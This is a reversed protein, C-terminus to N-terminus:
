TRGKLYEAGLARAPLWCAMRTARCGDRVFEASIPMFGISRYFPLAFPTSNVEITKVEPFSTEIHSRAGEWLARGIGRRLRSPHVFLLSLLSPSPMGIVGALQDGSFAAAAYAASALGKSLSQPSSETLFVQRAQPEWDAAALEMFSRHVLASAAEVDSPQLARILLEM